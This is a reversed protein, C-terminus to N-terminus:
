DVTQGYDATSAPEDRWGEKETMGLRTGCGATKLTRTKAEVSRCVVDKEIVELDM